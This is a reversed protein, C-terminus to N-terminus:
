GFNAFYKIFIVFYKIELLSLFQTKQPKQLNKATKPHNIQTKNAINALGHM